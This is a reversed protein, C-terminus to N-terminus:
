AENKFIHKELIMLQRMFEINPSVCHRRNKVFELANSLSINLYRMIYGIVITSSRSIGQRCHVFVNNKNIREQEIADYTKNFYSILDDNLTDKVPIRLYRVNKHEFKNPCGGDKLEPTVNIILSFTKNYTRKCFIESHNCANTYSGLWLFPLIESLKYDYNNSYKVDSSTTFNSLKLKFGRRKSLSSIEPSLVPSLIPSISPSLTTM